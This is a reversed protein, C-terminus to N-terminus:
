AVPMRGRLGDPVLGLVLRRSVHWFASLLLLGSGVVLATLSFNVSVAGAAQVLTSIAYLVYSLASVLLARRDVVLAVVALVLYLGFAAAARGIDAGGGLLGLFAFVPHVILPAASLHLWFAVDSRRTIRLRDSMDWRMALAFLAIGSVFVLVLWSEGLGPIAAVLAAVVAGVGAVAGVAVTIPVRFRRWHLWTGAVAAIAGGAIGITEGGLGPPGISLVTKALVLGIFYCCGAFSALLIISPLAMRRRRTFFEALGWSAAAVAVASVPPSINGALWALAVLMLTAAISVFIDNFGTLLRFQEEDAAPTARQRAVHARLAAAAEASIAGDTVAADLEADSYM